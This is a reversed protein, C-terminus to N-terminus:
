DGDHTYINGVALTHVRFTLYVGQVKRHNNTKEAFQKQGHIIM